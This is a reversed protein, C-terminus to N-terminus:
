RELEVVLQPQPPKRRKGERGDHWQWQERVSRYRALM